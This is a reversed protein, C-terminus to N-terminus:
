DGRSGQTRKTARPRKRDRAAVPQAVQRRDAERRWEGQKVSKVRKAM